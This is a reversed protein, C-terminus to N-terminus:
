QNKSIIIVQKNCSVHLKDHHASHIYIIIVIIITLYEYGTEVVENLSQVAAEVTPLCGM